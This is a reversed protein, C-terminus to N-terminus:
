NYKDYEDYEDYIIEGFLESHKKDQEKKQKLKQSFEKQKLENEKQKSIKINILMHQKQQM